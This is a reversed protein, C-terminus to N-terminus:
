KIRVWFSCGYKEVGEMAPHLWLPAVLYSLEPDNSVFANALEIEFSQTQALLHCALLYQESYYRGNWQPPYDAPLFIDHFHVLVGPNLKPLIDMFVVTVDSNTFARHSNDVFLIDGSQLSEFVELSIEEVPEEIRRDAVTGLEVRPHPDVSVIQTDLQQDEIARRAFRTSHGSGIEVYLRPRHLRILSYLSISDLAPLFGNIWVPTNLNEGATNEIRWIDSKYLLFQELLSRYGARRADIIQSLRAHVPKGYGYRPSPRVPHELAISFRPTRNRGILNLFTAATTRL